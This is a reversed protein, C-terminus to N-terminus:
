RLAEMAKAKLDFPVHSYRQLVPLTHGTISSVVSIPVGANLLRSTASHRLGHFSKGEIGASQCIRTFQQSLHKSGTERYQACMSVFVHGGIRQKYISQLYTKVEATMPIELRKAFRKTKNPVLDIKEAEFNIAEWELCAIDGLRLGTNWAIICAGEWYGFRIKQNRCAEKIKTYEEETFACEDPKTKSRYRGGAIDPVPNRTIYENEVLWTYFASITSKHLSISAKGVEKEALRRLYDVVLSRDYKVKRTDEMFQQVMFLRATYDSVTKDALVGRIEKLYLKIFSNM